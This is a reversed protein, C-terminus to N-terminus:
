ASRLSADRDLPTLQKAASQDKAESLIVTTPGM